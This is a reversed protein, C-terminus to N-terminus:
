DIRQVRAGAYERLVPELLWGQRQLRRHLLRVLPEDQDAGAARVHAELVADGDRATRPRHGLLAEIDDLNGAEIEAGLRDVRALVQAM